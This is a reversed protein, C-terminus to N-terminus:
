IERLRLIQKGSHDFNNPSLWREFRTRLKPWESDIISFWATDRNRNKYIRDQRFIGEFTFGLREAADRSAQNLSDCKWECRRYGLEEFVYYMMLYIAETAASTKKLLDSFHVYGIEVVGNHPSIRLYSVVGVPLLSIKNVITYLLPDRADAMPVLWSNFEDYNKFPGYPLYTWRRNDISFCDFLNKAHIAPNLRELIVYNGTIEKKSPLQAPAWSDLSKGILQGFENKTQHLTTTM